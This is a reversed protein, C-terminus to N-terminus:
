LNSIQHLCKIMLAVKYACCHWIKELITPPQYIKTTYIHRLTKKKNRIHYSYSELTNFLRCKMTQIHSEIMFFHKQFKYVKDFYMAYRLCWIYGKEMTKFIYKQCICHRRLIFFYICMFECKTCKLHFFVIWSYITYTSIYNEVSFCDPTCM